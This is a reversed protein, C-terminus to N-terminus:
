IGRQSRRRRITSSQVTASKKRGSMVLTSSCTSRSCASSGDASGCGRSADYASTLGRCKRRRPIRAGTEMMQRREPAILDLVAEGDGPVFADLYVVHGIRDAVCDAVGTIVAGSWAPHVLVFVHAKM